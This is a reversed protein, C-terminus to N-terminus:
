RSLHCLFFTTIAEPWILLVLWPSVVDEVSLLSNVISPVASLVCTVLRQSKEKIGRKVQFMLAVSVFDWVQEQKM